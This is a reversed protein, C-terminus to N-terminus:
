VRLYRRIALISSLAGVFVGSLLILVFIQPFEKLYYHFLNFGVFFNTTIQGIWYTIPLFVFLTTIGAVLGYIVGLVVFPGQIYLNSAGVLRMVAIEEKAIYITLRITNFAILVSLIIFAITVAFGLRNTSDIIKTLKDIAIKNQYYNVHDVITVGSSSLTNKGELFLAISEYQSPDKAKINLTAGLPNDRLEDLAALISQDNAHRIKFDELAQERSVYTVMSVAPLGELSHEINLIDSEVAEPVFTVNIDVKDRLESLSTNLIASGFILFGIVLLTVMMVLVSALSVTGNRWFNFFGTRIIRKINTWFM